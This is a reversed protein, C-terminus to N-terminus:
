LGSTSTVDDFFDTIPNRAFIEDLGLGLQNAMIRNGEAVPADSAQELM